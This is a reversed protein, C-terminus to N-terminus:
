NYSSPHYMKIKLGKLYNLYHIPALYFLNVKLVQLSKKAERYAALPKNETLEFRQGEYEPVIYHYNTNFWKTMEPFGSGKDNGRAMSFYTSTSVQGGKWYYRSPIIGFMASTDLVRDYLTFDGVAIVDVGADQQKKLNALRIEKTTQLLEDESIKKSWFAELARKWERNEGIVPYGAISSKVM